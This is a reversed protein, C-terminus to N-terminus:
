PRGCRACAACLWGGLNAPRRGERGGSGRRFRGPETRVRLSTIASDTGARHRELASPRPVPACSTHTGQGPGVPPNCTPRFRDVAGEIIRVRVDAQLRQRELRHSCIPRPSSRAATAQGSLEQRAAGPEPTIGGPPTGSRSGSAAGDQRGRDPRLRVPHRPCTGPHVRGRISAPSCPGSATPGPAGTMSGNCCRPSSRPTAATASAAGVHDLLRSCLTRADAARGTFPDVGTGAVGHRAAADLAAAVRPAPPGTGSAGPDGAPGRGPRDRGPRPDARGRASRHRRRPLRRRGPGRGDPLAPVAPRPRLISREDLAAGQAILRRVAADYGVADPWVSPATATPWRTHLIYRWSAWATDRGDAIPSNATVALLPALWPRLRALVQVGLDRSPVGVHVHCGCTGSDAVVPGYRRALERYRPQDTLAALGPSGTARSRVGGPQVGAASRRRRRAAPAQDARPRSQAPQHV